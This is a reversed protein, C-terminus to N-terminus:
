QRLVPLWHTQAYATWNYHLLCYVAYACYMAVSCSFFSNKEEQKRALVYPHYASYSSPHITHGDNNRITMYLVKWFDSYLMPNTM